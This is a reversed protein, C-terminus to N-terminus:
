KSQGNGGVPALVHPPDCSNIPQERMSSLRSKSFRISRDKAPPMVADSASCPVRWITCLAKILNPPDPLTLKTLDAPRTQVVVKSNKAGKPRSAFFHCGRLSGYTKHYDEFAVGAHATCEFIFHDHTKIDMASVYCHVRKPVIQACAPCNEPEHPVTRGGWYHTETVIMQEVTIVAQLPKDAPTRLLDFGMHKAKSPLTTSFVPM